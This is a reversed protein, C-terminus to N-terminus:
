LAMFGVKKNYEQGSQQDMGYKNQMDSDIFVLEAASVPPQNSYGFSDNLDDDVTAGQGTTYFGGDVTNANAANNAAEQQQQLELAEIRAAEMSTEHVKGQASMKAYYRPLFAKLCNMSEHTHVYIAHALSKRTALARFTASNGMWNVLSPHWLSNDDIKNIDGFWYSCFFLADDYAVILPGIACAFNLIRLKGADCRPEIEWLTSLIVCTVL